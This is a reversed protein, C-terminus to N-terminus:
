PRGVVERYIAETATATADWTYSAARQRGLEGLRNRESDDAGLAGLAAALAEVDMPDILVAAHGAVEETATGRSTIVAAGQGMAEIVPLGFGEYLSPFCFIECEAYLAVLDPASVFGLTRVGTPLAGDLGTQEAHWGSPGVLVLDLQLGDNTAMRYAEILRALNKRPERTGTWLVFPRDLRYNTRVAARQAETVMPVTAGLPVHRLRGPDIGADACDELTQLSSCCVIAAHRRTLELARRFFSNGRATYMEPMRLFAVDHLTTVVPKRTAPYAIGTAHVLDIPGTTWEVLPGRARHWAEYLGLRPLPVSRVPIPPQFEPRPAHRHTASVGVLDVVGRRELARALELAARATGGPVEHWCQEMTM